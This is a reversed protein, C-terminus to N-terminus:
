GAAVQRFSGAKAAELNLYTSIKRIEERNLGSWSRYETEDERRIYLEGTPKNMPARCRRSAKVAEERAYLEGTLKNM